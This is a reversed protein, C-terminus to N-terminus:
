SRVQIASFKNFWRPPPRVTASRRCGVRSWAIMSLSAFALNVPHVKFMAMPNCQPGTRSKLSLGIQGKLRLRSIPSCKKLSMELTDLM